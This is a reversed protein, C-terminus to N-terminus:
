LLIFIKRKKKFCFYRPSSMDFSLRFYFDFFREDLVQSDALLFVTPQKRSEAQTFVKVLDAQFQPVGYNNALTIQFVTHGELFAAFRTLSQKGSGGLGFLFMHYKPATIGRSFRVVHEIADKFLVLNMVTHSENYDGLKDDIVRTTIDWSVQPAYRNEEFHAEDGNPPYVTFM